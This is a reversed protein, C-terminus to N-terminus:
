EVTFGGGEVINSYINSKDDVLENRMESVREIVLNFLEICSTNYFTEVENKYCKTNKLTALSLLLQNVVDQVDKLNDIAYGESEISTREVELLMSKAELEDRAINYKNLDEYQKKFRNLRSELNEINDTLDDLQRSYKQAEEEKGEQILKTVSEKLYNYKEELQNKDEEYKLLINEYKAEIDKAQQLLIAEEEDRLKDIIENSKDLETQLSNNKEKLRDIEERLQKATVENPDSINNLYEEEEGKPIRLLARIKQYGLHQTGVVNSLQGFRCYFNVYISATARTLGIDELKPLYEGHKCTEKLYVLRRGIEFKSAEEIKKLIGIDEVIEDITQCELKVEQYPILESM